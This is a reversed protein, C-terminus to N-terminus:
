TIRTSIGNETRTWGAGKLEVGSLCAPIFSFIFPPLGRPLLSPCLDNVNVLGPSLACFARKRFLEPGGGFSRRRATTNTSAPPPTPPTSIHPSRFSLDLSRGWSGGLCGWRVLVSQRPSCPLCVVRGGQRTPARTPQSPSCPLCVVRGGWALTPQPHASRISLGPHQRLPPCLARSPFNLRQAARQAPRPCAGGGGRLRPPRRPAPVAM